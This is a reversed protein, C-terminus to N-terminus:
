KRMEMKIKPHYVYNNIKLDDLNYDEINDKKLIDLTPFPKPTRKIQEKLEEIHDDYIHVNGLYYNFEGLDLDTIKSILITLISYSAINFPVGLGLDCSRQYMTCSLRNKIVNFQALLHCPPLAMEDLQCPNWATLILRRSYKKEPDKLAKIIEYLQDVGEGTYNDKCTRYTANFNRWQFGYVPGLDNESRDFLGISDLYDRSSNENWIKVNQNKLEQNDTCGKIFWFLEKACTKWALQKTTLFPICGKSLDFTMAAGFGTLTNGNRGKVLEGDNLISEILNLYQNEEHRVGNRFKIHETIQKLM